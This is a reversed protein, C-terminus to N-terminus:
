PPADGKSRRKRKRAGPAAAPGPAPKFTWSGPPVRDLLAKLEHGGRPSEAARSAIAQLLEDGIDLESARTVVLRRAVELLEEATPARLAVAAQVREAVRLPLLGSCASILDRTSYLSLDGEDGTALLAPPLPGGRVALVVRPLRDLAEDLIRLDSSTAGELGDVLLREDGWPEALAAPSPLYRGLGRKELARLFTTKGSGEPGLLLLWGVGLKLAREVQRVAEAQGLFDARGVEEILTAPRARQATPEVPAPSEAGLIEQSERVCGLCIFAGAPGAVLDGAESRPRCCFSCWAALSPDARSPGREFMKKKDSAELAELPELAATEERDSDDITRAFPKDPLWELRHIEEALDAQDGDVRQAHRLLQLARQANGSSRVLTAAKRLLAVAQAKDGRLEAEQAARIYERVEDAM